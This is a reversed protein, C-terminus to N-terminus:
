VVRAFPLHACVDIRVHPLARKFKAGFQVRQGLPLNIYAISEDGDWIERKM